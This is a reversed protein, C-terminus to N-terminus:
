KVVNPDNSVDYDPNKRISIIDAYIIESDDVRYMCDHDVTSFLMGNQVIDRTGYSMGTETITGCKRCRAIAIYPLEDNYKIRTSANRIKM